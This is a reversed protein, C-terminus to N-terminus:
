AVHEQVRAISNVIEREIDAEGWSAMASSFPEFSYVGKYGRAELAKIQEVTKLRDGPMLMLRQDDTLTELPRPDSVGSLHVLGMMSVDVQSLAQAAQPYLAHHFTDILLKFPVSADRILTQAEAASRLSSQPYGLPEVLGDIGYEAFLPALDQLAALTETPEVQRGDNLPCIVLGAAGVAQADKLLSETLERVAPTRQNFPYLANITVIEIDYRAALERVQEPSLDDTVKGSAMDNRLEVKNLGLRNVLKFFAPIDLGTAIKRNVCFRHMEITM